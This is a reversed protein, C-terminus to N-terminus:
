FASDIVDVRWGGRGDPAVSAVDFRITAARTTPHAALWLRALRRLRQQKTVTVAEVPAGFRDSRRTKVECVVLADACRVVLDLEGDRVRWNRDLVVGGAAEYWRAVAAEGAEGVARRADAM